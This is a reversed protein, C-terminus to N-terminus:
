IQKKWSFIKQMIAKATKPDPPEDQNLTLQHLAEAMQLAVPHFSFELIIRERADAMLQYVQRKPARSLLLTAARDLEWLITTLHSEQSCPPQKAKEVVELAKLQAKQHDEAWVNVVVSSGSLKVHYLTKEGSDLSLLKLEDSPSTSNETLLICASHQSIARYVSQLPSPVNLNLTISAAPPESWFRSELKM